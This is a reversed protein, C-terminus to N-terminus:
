DPVVVYLCMIGSSRLYTHGPTVTSSGHLYLNHLRMKEYKRKTLGLDMCMALLKDENSVENEIITEDKSSNCAHLHNVLKLARSLEEGNHNLATENM